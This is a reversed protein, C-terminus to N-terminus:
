RGIENVAKIELEPSVVFERVSRFRLDFGSTCAVCGLRDLIQKKLGIMKDFSWLVDVPVTVHVVEPAQARAIQAADLKPM